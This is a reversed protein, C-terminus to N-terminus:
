KPTPGDIPLETRKSWEDWSGDYMRADYGLLRAVLWTLTARQGIYCYSVVQSGPKVGADKFLDKLASVDKLRTNEDILSEIPLSGAGPIHGRRGTSRATEAGAYDPALRSDVVSVAPQHLHETVWKADAFFEPHVQPALKGRAPTKVEATLAAIFSQGSARWAPMGGDLLSVRDDLGLYALTWLIRTAPTITNRGFYVIVRSSNSIGRSEFAEQLQALPLLELMLAGTTMDHSAVDQLAIYQAGAIHEKQYEAKDGVHLLVLNQDNLHAALWSPSVILDGAKAPQALVSAVYCAALLFVPISKLADERLRLELM